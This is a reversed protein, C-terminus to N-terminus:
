LRAWYCFCALGAGPPWGNPSGTGPLQMQVDRVKTGNREFGRRRRCTKKEDGQSNKRLKEGNVGAGLVLSFMVDARVAWETMQLARNELTLVSFSLLLSSHLKIRKFVFFESQEPDLRKTWGWCHFLQRSTGPFDPGFAGFAKESHFIFAREFCVKNFLGTPVTLSLQTSPESHICIFGCFLEAKAPLDEPHCRLRCCFFSRLPLLLKTKGWLALFAVKFFM